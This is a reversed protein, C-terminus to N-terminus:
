AAQGVASVRLDEGVSLKGAEELGLFALGVISSTYGRAMVADYFAPVTWVDAANELLELMTQQAAEVRDAVDELTQEEHAQLHDQTATTM